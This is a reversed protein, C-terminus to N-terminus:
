EAAEPEHTLRSLAKVQWADSQSGACYQQFFSQHGHTARLYGDIVPNM